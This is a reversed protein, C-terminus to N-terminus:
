SIFQFNKDKIIFDSKFNNDIRSKGADDFRGQAKYNRYGFDHRQCSQLFDFGFPDDPSYSCGDSSWDLEPPDQAARAAQFEAMLDSFLLTDTIAELDSQRQFLSFPLSLAMTPCLLSHNIVENPSHGIM